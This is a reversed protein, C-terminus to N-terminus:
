RICIMRRTTRMNGARLEYVYMGPTLFAADFQVTHYGSEQESSVLTMMNKGLMDYIKLTLFENKPISYSISAHDGNIRIPNPYNQYLSFATPDSIKETGSINPKLDLIELDDVAAQVLANAITNSATFRIRMKDTPTIYERIKFARATWDGISETTRELDTWSKGDDGSVQVIWDTNAPEAGQNSTFFRWYRIVPIRYGSLDYLASQLTTKGGLVSVNPSIMSAVGTMWCTSDTFVPSHDATPQANIGKPVGRVWIGNTAKDDNDPNVIWNDNKEMNDFLKSEFGILFIYSQTTGKNPKRQSGGYNDNVNLYYRVVSGNPLAALTDDFRTKSTM